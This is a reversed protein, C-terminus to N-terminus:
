HEVEPDILAPGRFREGGHVVRHGVADVGPLGRILTELERAEAGTELADLDHEALIEDRPGLPRLKLSSSGANVVLIRM